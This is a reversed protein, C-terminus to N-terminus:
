LQKDQDVERWVKLTTSSNNNIFMEFAIFPELLEIIKNEEFKSLKKDIEVSYTGNFFSTRKVNIVEKINKIFEEVINNKIKKPKSIEKDYSDYASQIEDELTSEYNAKMQEVTYYNETNKKIIKAM